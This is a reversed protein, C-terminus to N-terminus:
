NKQGQNLKHLEFRLNTAEDFFGPGFSDTLAGFEDIQIKKVKAEKENVYRDDNFYYINVDETDIEKKATLHQLKRILYESHTEIIFKTGLSKNALVLIDALKSQLNPHLNAEPEEIVLTSKFLKSLESSNKGHEGVRRFDWNLWESESLSNYNNFEWEKDQEAEHKSILIKLIIPIVQSYGFGLDSLSIKRNKNKIYIMSASGNIREIEIEGEINLLRLSEKLFKGEETLFYIKNDNDDYTYGQLNLNMQYFENVIMDIDTSAENMLIRSRNGRFASIFTLHSFFYKLDNFSANINNIIINNFHSVNEDQSRVSLDFEENDIIVSMSIARELEDKAFGDLFFLNTFVDSGKRKLAYHDQSVEKKFTESENEFLLEFEESWEISETIEGDSLIPKSYKFFLSKKSALEFYAKPYKEQVFVEIPKLLSNDTTLGLYHQQRYQIWDEQIKDTLVTSSSNKTTRNYKIGQTKLYLIYDEIIFDPYNNIDTCVFCKNITEKIYEIDLSYLYDLETFGFNLNELEKINLLTRQENYIKFSKIKGNNNNNIYTLELLFKEDFYNLPFDVTLKIENNKKNWNLVNQFSGLNHKGSNFILENTSKNEGFSTQLLEILKLFSSKGSNNPGTLITIPAIEFETFDKFVRFNEIGIKKILAM